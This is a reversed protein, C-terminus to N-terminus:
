LVIVPSSTIPSLYTAHNNDGEGDGAVIFYNLQFSLNPPILISIRKGMDLTGFLSCAQHSQVTIKRKKEFPLLIYLFFGVPGTISRQQLECKSVSIAIRNIHVFHFILM